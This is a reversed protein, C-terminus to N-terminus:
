RFSCNDVVVADGDNLGRRTPAQKIALIQRRVAVQEEEEYKAVDLDEIRLRDRSTQVSM